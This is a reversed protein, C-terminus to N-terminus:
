RNSTRRFSAIVCAAGIEEVTLNMGKREQQIQQPTKFDM